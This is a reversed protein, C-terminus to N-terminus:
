PIDKWPRSLGLRGDAYTFIQTAIGLALAFIRHDAWLTMAGIMGFGELMSCFMSRLHWGLKMRRFQDIRSRNM